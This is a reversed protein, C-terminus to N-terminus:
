KDLLYDMLIELFAVPFSKKICVEGLNLPPVGLLNKLCATSSRTIPLVMDSKFVQSATM